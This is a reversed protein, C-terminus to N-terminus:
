RGRPTQTVHARAPGATVEALPVVTSAPVLTLTPPVYAPRPAPLPYYVAFLLLITGAALCALALALQPSPNATM